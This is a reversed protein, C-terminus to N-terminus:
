PSEPSPPCCHRSLRTPVLSRAAGFGHGSGIGRPEGVGVRHGDKGAPAGSPRFQGRRKVGRGSEADRRKVFATAHREIWGLAVVVGAVAIGGHRGELLGHGGEFAGPCGPGKRRAHARHAAHDQAQTRSAVVDHSLALKVGAGLEQELRHTGAEPNIHGEHVAGFRSRELGCHSRAPGHQHKGLGRGVGAEVQDVQLLQAGDTAWQGRYVGGEGWGGDGPRQVVAHIQAQVRGGLAEAAM